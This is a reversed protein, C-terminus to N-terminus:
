VELKRLWNVVLFNRFPAMSEAFLPHQLSWRPLNSFWPNMSWLWESDKWSSFILFKAFVGSFQCKWDQDTMKLMHQKYNQHLSANRSTAQSLIIRQNNKSYRINATCHSLTCSPLIASHQLTVDMTVPGNDLPKVIKTRIWSLEEIQPGKLGSWKRHNWIGFPSSLAKHDALCSRSAEDFFLETRFDQVRRLVTTAVLEYSACQLVVFVM